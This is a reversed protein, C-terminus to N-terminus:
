SLSKNLERIKKRFTGDIMMDESILILGGLVDPDVTEKIEPEGKGKIAKKIAEKVEKNIPKASIVEVSRVGRQKKEYADFEKIISAIKGVDNNKELVGIFEKIKKKIDGKDSSLEYLFIAYQYPTIKNKM